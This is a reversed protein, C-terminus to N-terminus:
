KGPAHTFCRNLIARAEAAEPMTTPSIRALIKALVEAIAPAQEILRANAETEATSPKSLGGWNIINRATASIGM